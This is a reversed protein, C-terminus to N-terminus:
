RSLEIAHITRKRISAHATFRQCTLHNLYLASLKLKIIQPNM